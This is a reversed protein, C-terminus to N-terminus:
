KGLTGMVDLIMAVRIIKPYYVIESEKRSVEVVHLQANHGTQGIQGSQVLTKQALNVRLPIEM